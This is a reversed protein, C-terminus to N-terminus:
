EPPVVGPVGRRVMDARIGKLDYTLQRSKRAEEAEEAEELRRAEQEAARIGALREQNAWEWSETERLYKGRALVAKKGEIYNYVLALGVACLAIICLGILCANGM